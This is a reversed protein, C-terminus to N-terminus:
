YERDFADRRENRKGKYGYNQIAIMYLFNVEAIGNIIRLLDYMEMKEKAVHDGLEIGGEKIFNNWM